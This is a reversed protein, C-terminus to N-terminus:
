SPGVPSPLGSPVFANIRGPFWVKVTLLAPVPLPVTVLLGVPIAQPEVQEYAKGYLVATVRVAAAVPDEVKLPHLPPPQEPVPVHTTVILTAWATVAVNVSEDVFVGVLVLVAVNVMVEVGVFVRVKVGVLVFVAVNVRVLVGVRVGVLVRVKVGVLVFVAVNVRVLVAVKVGVFVRVKVGVLV